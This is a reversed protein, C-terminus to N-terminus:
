AGTAPPKKSRYEAGNNKFNGINEKKKTDVSIVPTGNKLFEEATDNIFRFQADRDPHQAGIKKMKQNQQKSYGLKEIMKGVIVHCVNIGKEALVDAIKRLSKSTYRM